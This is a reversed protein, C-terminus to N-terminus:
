DGGHWHEVLDDQNVFILNGDEDLDYVGVREKGRPMLASLDPTAVHYSQLAAFVVLVLLVQFALFALLFLASLIVAVTTM